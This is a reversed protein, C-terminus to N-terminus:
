NLAYISVKFDTSFLVETGFPLLESKVFFKFLKPRHDPDLKIRIRHPEPAPDSHVRSGIDPDPDSCNRNPDVFSGRRGRGAKNRLIKGESGELCARLLM